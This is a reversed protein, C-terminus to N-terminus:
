ILKVKLWCLLHFSDIREAIALGFTIGLHSVKETALTGVKSLHIKQTHRHRRAEGNSGFYAVFVSEVTTLRYYLQYLFFYLGSYSM